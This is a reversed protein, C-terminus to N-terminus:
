TKGLFVAGDAKLKEIVTADYAAKYNELMKSAATAPLGAILLNDKIAMPVGALWSIPENKAVKLDTLEAQKFAEDKHLSLYAGIEPDRTAIYDFFTKAVDFASFEKKELGEHFKKIVGRKIPSPMWWRLRRWVPNASAMKGFFM